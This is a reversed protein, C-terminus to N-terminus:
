TYSYINNSVISKFLICLDGRCTIYQKFHYYFLLEREREAVISYPLCGSLTSPYDPSPLSVLVALHVEAANYIM